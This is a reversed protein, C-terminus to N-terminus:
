RVRRRDDAADPQTTLWQRLRSLHGFVAEGKTTLCFQAEPSPEVDLTGGRHCTIFGCAAMSRLLPMSDEARTCVQSFPAMGGRAHLASLLEYADLRALLALTEDVHDHDGM